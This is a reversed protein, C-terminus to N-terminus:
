NSTTCFLLCLPCYLAVLNAPNHSLVLIPPHYAAPSSVELIRLHSDRGAHQAQAGAPHELSSQQHCQRPFGQADGGLAWVIHSYPLRYQAGIANHAFKWWGHHHHVLIYRSPTLTAKQKHKHTKHKKKKSTRQSRRQNSQERVAFCCVCVACNCVRCIFPSFLRLCVNQTWYASAFQM